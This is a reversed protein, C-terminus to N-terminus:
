AARLPHDQGRKGDPFTIGKGISERKAAPGGYYGQLLGAKRYLFAGGEGMKEKGPHPIPTPHTHTPTYTNTTHIHSTHICYIHHPYSIIHTTHITHIHTYTLQTHTHM